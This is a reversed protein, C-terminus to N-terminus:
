PDWVDEAGIGLASCLRDMHYPADLSHHIDSGLWFPVHRKKLAQIVPLYEELFAPHNLNM